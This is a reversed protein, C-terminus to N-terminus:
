SVGDKRRPLVNREMIFVYRVQEDEPSLSELKNEVSDYHALDVGIEKGHLERRLEQRIEYESALEWIRKGSQLDYNKEM